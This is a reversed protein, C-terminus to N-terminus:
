IEPPNTQPQPTTPLAQTTWMSVVLKKPFEYASKKNKKSLVVCQLDITGYTQCLGLFGPKRNKIRFSKKTTLTIGSNDQKIEYTDKNADVLKLDDLGKEYKFQEPTFQQTTIALLTDIVGKESESCCKEKFAKSFADKYVPSLLINNIKKKECEDCEDVHVLNDTYNESTTIEVSNKFLWKVHSTIDAAVERDRLIKQGILYVLAAVGTPVFIVMAELIMKAAFMSMGLKFLTAGAFITGYLALPAGPIFFLAATLISIVAVTGFIKAIRV